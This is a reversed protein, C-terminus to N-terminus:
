GIKGFSGAVFLDRQVRNMAIAGIQDPVGASLTFQASEWSGGGLLSRGKTYTTLM